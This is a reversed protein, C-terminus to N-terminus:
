NRLCTGQILVVLTGKISTGEGGEDRIYIEGIEFTAITSPQAPGLRIALSVEGSGTIRNEVVPRQEAFGTYVFTGQDAIFTRLNHNSEFGNVRFRLITEASSYGVEELVVYIGNHEVSEGVEHFRDRSLEKSGAGFPFDILGIAASTVGSATILVLALSVPLALSRLLRAVM